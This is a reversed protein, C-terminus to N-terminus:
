AVITWALSPHGLDLCGCILNNCLAASNVNVTNFCSINQCVAGLLLQKSALIELLLQGL